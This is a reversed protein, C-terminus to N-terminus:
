QEDADEVDDGPRKPGRDLTQGHREEAGQHDQDDSQQAPGHGTRPDPEGIRIDSVGAMSNM